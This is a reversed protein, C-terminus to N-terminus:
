LMELVSTYIKKASYNTIVHNQFAKAKEKVEAKSVSRIIKAADEVDKYLFMYEKPIFTPSPSVDMELLAAGAMSSEVVRGKVHYVIGTGTHAFNICIQCRKLFDAYEEYKNSKDAPRAGGRPRYNVLGAEVLPMLVRRRPHPGAVGCQGPFGCHIDKEVTGVYPRPDCPMITSLDIGPINQAGDLTIQLDFCENRKYILLQEHWPADAADGCMHILSAISRLSRLTKESPIGSGANASAYFIIEPDFDKAFTLMERDRPAGTIDYKFDRAENSNFSTWSNMFVGTSFTPVIFLAKVKNGGEVDHWKEKGM